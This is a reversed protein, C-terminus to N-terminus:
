YVPHWTARAAVARRGGGPRLLPVADGRLPRHGRARQREAARVPQRSRVGRAGARPPHLREPRARDRRSRGRRAPLLLRRAPGLLLLRVPGRPRDRGRAADAGGVAPQRRQLGLAGAGAALRAPRGVPPVRLRV